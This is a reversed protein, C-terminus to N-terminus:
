REDGKSQAARAKLAATCFDGVADKFRDPVHDPSISIWPGKHDPCHDWGLSTRRYSREGGAFRERAVIGELMQSVTIM